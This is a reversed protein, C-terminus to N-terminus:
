HLVQKGQNKILLKKKGLSSQALCMKIHMTRVGDPKAFTKSLLVFCQVNLGNIKQVLIQKNRKYQNNEEVSKGEM